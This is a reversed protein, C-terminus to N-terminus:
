NRLYLGVIQVITGLHRSKPSKKADQMKLWGRAARKLV